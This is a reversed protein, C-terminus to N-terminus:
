IAERFSYSLVIASVSAAYMFIRSDECVRSLTRLRSVTLRTFFFCVLEYGWDRLATERGARAPPAHTERDSQSVVFAPQHIENTYRM